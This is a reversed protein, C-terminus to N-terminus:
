SDAHDEIKVQLPDVPVLFTDSCAQIRHSRRRVLRSFNHNIWFDRESTRNERSCSYGCGNQIVPFSEPFAFVVYRLIVSDVFKRDFFGDAIVLSRSPVVKKRSRM